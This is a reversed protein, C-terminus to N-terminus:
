LMRTWGLLGVLNGDAELLQRCEDIFSEKEGMSAHLVRVTEVMSEKVEAFEDVDSKGGEVLNLWAITLGKMVEVRHEVMRPWANFIVAQLAQLTAVLLDLQQAKAAQTLSESLMPLVNQLHKVSDIGLENLLTALNLFLIRTIGPYQGCHAYAHLIGKRLITDLSV